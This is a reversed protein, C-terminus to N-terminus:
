VEEDDRNQPQELRWVLLFLSSPSTFFEHTVSYVVHGSTDVVRFDLVDEQGVTFM